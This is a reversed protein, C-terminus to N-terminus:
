YVLSINSYSHINLPVVNLITYLTYNITNHKVPFTVFALLLYNVNVLSPFTSFVITM